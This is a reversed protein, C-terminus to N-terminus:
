KNDKIKIAKIAHPINKVIFDFVRYPFNLIAMCKVDPWITRSNIPKLKSIGPSPPIPTDAMKVPIANQM